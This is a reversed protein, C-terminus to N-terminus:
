KWSVENKYTEGRTTRVVVEMSWSTTDEKWFDPLLLLQATDRPAV